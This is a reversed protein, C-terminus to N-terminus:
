NRGALAKAKQVLSIFEARYGGEDSGLGEEALEILGNYTATGKHPSDRLIMGFAAVSAAFKFDGSAKGYSAGGDTVPFELLRSTKGDPDKYRLKVTLLEDSADAPASQAPPAPSKQYKLPDVGPPGKLEAGTPVVEYLATVTHGAGIEGADKTDDNFDEKALLRNEYGILRYASVKAAQAKQNADFSAFLNAPVNRRPDPIIPDPVISTAATTMPARTQEDSPAAARAKPAPKPVPVTQAPSPTAIGTIVSMALLMAAM